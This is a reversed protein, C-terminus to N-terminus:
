DTFAPYLNQQGTFAPDLNRVASGHVVGADSASLYASTAYLRKGTQTPDPNSSETQTRDANCRLAVVDDTM